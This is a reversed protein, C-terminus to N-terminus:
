HATEGQPKGTVGPVWEQGHLRRSLATIRDLVAGWAKPDNGHADKISDQLDQCVEHAPEFLARLRALRHADRGAALERRVLAYLGAAEAMVIAADVEQPPMTSVLRQLRRMESDPPELVSRTRGWQEAM